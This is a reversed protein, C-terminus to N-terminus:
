LSPLEKKQRDPLASVEEKNEASQRNLQEVIEPKRSDLLSLYAKGFELKELAQRNMEFVKESDGMSIFMKKGRYAEMIKLVGYFPTEIIRTMGCLVKESLELYFKRAGSDGLTFFLLVFVMSAIIVILDIM